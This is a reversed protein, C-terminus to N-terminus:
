ERLSTDANERRCCEKQILKQGMMILKKIEHLCYAFQTKLDIYSCLDKNLVFRTRNQQTCLFRKGSDIIRFTLSLYFM